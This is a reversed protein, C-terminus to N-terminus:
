AEKRALAGSKILIDVTRAATLLLPNEKDFIIRGMSIVMEREQVETLTDGLEQMREAVARRAARRLQGQGNVSRAPLEQLAVWLSALRSFKDPIHLVLHEIAWLVPEASEVGEPREGRAADFCDRVLAFLEGRWYRSLARPLPRLEISKSELMSGRKVGGAFGLAVVSAIM